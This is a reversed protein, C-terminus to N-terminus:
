TQGRFEVALLSIDDQPETNNGFSMMSEIVGDIINSLLRDKLRKLEAFFRDEDYFLGDENQYEAIGDTYLFLKDGSCLKRRGEEFPILGGMGIITGGENLLELSGDKHLLVPPPHGANSYRLTGDKVNLICYSITFFKDFREIPYERDMENLVETPPVIEYYPAKEINKKLLFGVRPQLMQSVSVAVMSSTIGHGSVDLMYIAWHDEDLRLINFIDGGIRQCPMFRWVVDITKADPPNIAMLSRQIEAGAKLNEDIRKQKRILDNNARKLAKTLNQIKLQAKVRALVERKDFPKTLYDVGGLELGKIKDETEGRASFFIIPIDASRSDRKLEHCVEYGDKGPMMIDLLILDPLEQLTLEIAEDGDGAEILECNEKKLINALLKRNVIEDDAILIKDPM